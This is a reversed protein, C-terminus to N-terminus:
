QQSGAIRGSLPVDGPLGWQIIRASAYSYQQSSFLLYWTGNSPRWVALDTRGDGDYDNAVPIDGPLGWQIRARVPPLTLNNFWIYWAGDGPRWVAFDARGDGDFDGAIPIDGPLGWQFVLPTARSYDVSSQRVYWVGNSPRWVALDALGDRDFDATLPVDGPLGWQYHGNYEGGPFENPLRSPIRWDTLQVSWEATDPRWTVFDSRRDGNFDGLLPVSQATYNLYPFPYWTATEINFGNSSYRINWNGAPASGFYGAPNYIALETKDDGDYDGPMPVVGPVGWPEVLYDGYSYGASSRLAFWTGTSPRYVAPDALGDGDFDGPVPNGTSASRGSQHVTMTQGSCFTVVGDRPLSSNNALAVFETSSDGFGLVGLPPLTFVIWDPASVVRWPGSFPPDALTWFAGTGGRWGATLASTPGPAPFFRATCPGTAQTVLVNQGATPTNWRVRIFGQRLPASWSAADLTYPIVGAGSGGTTGVHMWSVSSDVTWACGPQTDVHVLGNGAGGEADIRTPSVRYECTQSASTVAVAAAAFFIAITVSVPLKV